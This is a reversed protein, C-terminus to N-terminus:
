VTMFRSPHPLFLPSLPFLREGIRQSPRTRVPFSSVPAHFFDASPPLFVLLCRPPYSMFVGRSRSNVPVLFCRLFPHFVFFSLPMPHSLSDVFKVRKKKLLDEAHNVLRFPPSSDLFSHSEMRRQFWSFVSKFFTAPSPEKCRPRSRLSTCIASSSPLSFPSTFSWGVGRGRSLREPPLHLPPFSQLLDSDLCMFRRSL